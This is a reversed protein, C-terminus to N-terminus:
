PTAHSPTAASAPQAPILFGSQRFIDAAQASRLFDLYKKTSAQAQISAAVPYRIAPHLHDAFVGVVVVRPETLADSLYVIGLPAEGRAVLALASRANDALALRVQLTPWLGLSELAARSYRGLPVARTDALVLRARPDQLSQLAQELDRAQTIRIPATNTRHRGYAPRILVLQNSLLINRTERAILNRADLYDMWAEDASLLVDVQAGNEIQRALTSSAAFSHRVAIGTAITFAASVAQLSDTLSAAALVTLTAPPAAPKPPEAPVAVIGSLAFALAVLGAISATRRARGHVGRSGTLQKHSRTM